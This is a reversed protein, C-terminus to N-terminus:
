KGLTSVEQAAKVVQAIQAERHDQSGLVGEIMQALFILYTSRTMGLGKATKDIQEMIEPECRVSYTKKM